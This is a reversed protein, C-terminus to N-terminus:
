PPVGDDVLNRIRQRLEEIHMRKIINGTSLAPETYAQTPYGLATLANDLNTRLEVIHVAKITSFGSILAADTWSASPLMAVVRLADVAQRLEIIHQAKATTVGVVLIDDTFVTPLYAFANPKSYSCGSGPSLVIEVAGVAHAPTTVTIVSTDGVNTYLWSASAGGMTVASLGAFAGTLQLQQGGATRGVPSSMTDIRLASLGWNLTINGTSNGFGDVAIRYVTGSVANFVVKSTMLSPFAADDNSAIPTLSGVSNGTYVALLTDYGSGATDITVSGNESAQWQYWVSSGGIDGAHAPEAAEKTASVNTGSVSGSCGSIIQANAFNDNAPPSPTPSPSPAACGLCWGIDKMLSSTLDQPPSVSHSLNSNFIPEMLQNPAASTDWHAVSSGAQRPNPAYMLPRGAGDKGSSLVSAADTTVQSGNWTLHNTNITSAVREADTMQPWTQGTTNDFLFRDYISPFRGNADGAQLGSSTNTYTQFGLGHSFEHLLLAVLNIGGPGSNTDLGYYWHSSEVCGPTGINSNFFATIEPAAGNGDSNTLANRLANGYWTSPVAGSFDRYIAGSNGASGLVGSSATCSLATWSARITITPGSTLTAGWINAAFQFANLRQQGLTTGNNGGVPAVVTPDNFGTGAADANEIVITASAFAASTSM